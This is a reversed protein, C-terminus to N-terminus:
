LLVWALHLLSAFVQRSAKLFNPDLPLVFFTFFPFSFQQQKSLSLSLSLSESLKMDTGLHGTCQHGVSVTPWCM